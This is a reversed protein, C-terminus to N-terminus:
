VFVLLMAKMGVDTRRLIGFGAGCTETTSILTKCNKFHKGDGPQHKCAVGVAHDFM